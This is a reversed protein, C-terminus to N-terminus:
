CTFVNALSLNAVDAGHDAAYLLGPLVSSDPFEGKGSCVKVGMLMTKSTLGAALQANSAVAAAVHTGHFMLDTILDRDPFNKEVLLDDEPVFSKSRSLDVRGALDPHLYDIGTDLIAVTVKSSGLRGKNWAVDAKIARMNWQFPYFSAATPNCASAVAGGDKLTPSGQTLPDGITGFVGDATISVVQPILRVADAAADSLGRVM